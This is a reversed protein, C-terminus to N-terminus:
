ARTPPPSSPKARVLRQVQWWVIRFPFKVWFSTWFFLWEGCLAAIQEPPGSFKRDKHEYYSIKEGDWSVSYRPKYRFISLRPLKMGYGRALPELLYDKGDRKFTVWAHGERYRGAIGGVFRADYNMQLLQRWAWLAFDECDGKRSEEFQEPPQWYDKRGFQEQDSVYRCLMLFHRMDGFNSCPHALPQSLFRGVPFTPHFGSHRRLDPRFVKRGVVDYAEPIIEAIM